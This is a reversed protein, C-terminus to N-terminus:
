LLSQALKGKGKARAWYGANIQPFRQARRKSRRFTEHTEPRRGMTPANNPQPAGLSVSASLPNSGLDPEGHSHLGMSDRGDRYRNLLVSNFSRTLEADAATLWNGLEVFAGAGLDIELSAPVARKRRFYV